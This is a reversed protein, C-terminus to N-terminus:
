NSAGLAAPAVSSPMPSSAPMTEPTPVKPATPSEPNVPPPAGRKECGASALLTSALAISILALPRYKM